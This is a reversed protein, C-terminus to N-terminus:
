SSLVVLVGVWYLIMDKHEPFDPNEKWLGEEEKRTCLDNVLAANNGYM